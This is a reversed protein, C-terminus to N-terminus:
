QATHERIVSMALKCDPTDLWQITTGRKEMRRFWTEQRKAFNKIAPALKQFLDNRNKIIGQVFETVFRYELGLSMLRDEAIGRALLEEVEEVLGQGLREKLRTEINKHLAPRPLKLGLLLPTIKPSKEPPHTRKFEEIEIARHLRETDETDTTNHLDGKLDALRTVLSAHDLSALERRLDGNVPVELMRYEDLVASLYLGTGGVIIPHKGRARISDLAEFARKQFEFASFEHDVDVCDILHYPVADVGEGYETLDKGSGVDLGRYVQRSDASIIEGDLARALQVGLHTKGTATAGLLVLTDFSNGSSTM